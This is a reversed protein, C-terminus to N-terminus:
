GQGARHRHLRRDMADHGVPQGSGHPHRYPRNKQARRQSGPAGLRIRGGSRRRSDMHGHGRLVRIWVHGSLGQQSYIWAPVVFLVFGFSTGRPQTLGIYIFGLTFFGTYYAAVGDTHSALVVETVVVLLPFVLLTQQPLGDLAARLPGADVVVVVLLIIFTTVLADHPVHLDWATSAVLLLFAAVLGAGM